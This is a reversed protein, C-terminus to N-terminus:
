KKLSKYQYYTGLAFLLSALAYLYSSIDTRFSIWRLAQIVVLSQGIVYLLFCFTYYSAARRAYGSTMNRIQIWLILSILLALIVVVSATVFIQFPTM